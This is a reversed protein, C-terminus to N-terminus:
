YPKTSYEKIKSDLNLKTVLMPDESFVVLNMVEEVVYTCGKNGAKAIVADIGKEKYELVITKVKESKKLFHSLNYFSNNENKRKENKDKVFDTANYYKVAIM